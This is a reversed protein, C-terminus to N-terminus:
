NRNEYIMKLYKRGRIFQVEGNEKFGLEEYLKKAHNDEFVDLELNSRHTEELYKKYAARAYGKRRHNPHIDCGIVNGDTRFYGVRELTSQECIVFWFSNLNKFWEKCEELNYITNDKLQNRTSEDNRVELLFELDDEMLPVLIVEM